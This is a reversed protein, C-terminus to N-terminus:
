KIHKMKPKGGGLEAIGDFFFRKIPTHEFLSIIGVHITKGAFSLYPNLAWFDHTDPYREDKVRVNAYFGLEFLKEFIPGVKNKGVNFEKALDRMMVKDNLPKLSNNNMSGYSVLKRAVRYELDTLMGELQEWVYHTAYYIKDFNEEPLFLKRNEPINNKRPNLETIEGTELNIKAPIENHKFKILEEYGTLNAKRKAM